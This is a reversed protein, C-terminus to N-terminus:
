MEHGGGGGKYELCLMTLDDFQAEDKVFGDVAKRVNDLIKEPSAEPELNLAGIARSLGFLEGDANRAETLGDTYLFLKSGPELKIEYEKYLTEPMAGAILGHQDRFVNFHIGAPMLAPYEHGANVATIVGTALDLVGFWVTVFMYENNGSCVQENVAEMVKAPSLGAMAYNRIQTKTTMMFLAAPVGKDSVDAIVIGLHTDDILFFDYFDGGVEKAPTMSAYIDFEGHDPYAPFVNPLAEAQIRAALQLETSTREKEMTMEALNRTNEVISEQMQRIGRCLDGIEDRNPVKVQSVRDPSYTGDEEPVFDKTAQALSQVPRIIYRRMLLATIASAYVTVFFTSLIARLLFNNHERVEETLNCTMWIQGRCGGELDIQICRVMEDQGEIKVQTPSSYDSANLGKNQNVTGFEYISIQEYSEMEQVFCIVYQKGDKEVVGKVTSLDGMQQMGYLLSECELWDQLLCEKEPFVSPKELFWEEFQKEKDEKDEVSQIRNLEESGLFNTFHQLYLAVDEDPIEMKELKRTYPTFSAMHYAHDSIIILMTSVFLVLAVVMVNVKLALSVRKHKTM